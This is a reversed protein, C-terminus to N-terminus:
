SLIIFKYVVFMIVTLIVQGAVFNAYIKNSEKESNKKLYQIVLYENSFSTVNVILLFALTVSFANEFSTFSTSFLLLTILLHTFSFRFEKAATFIKGTNIM